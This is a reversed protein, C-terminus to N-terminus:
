LLRNRLSVTTTYVKRMLQDNITIAPANLLVFPGAPSGPVVTGSNILLSVRVSLVQAWPLAASAPAYSDVAGDLTTDVGYLIQMGDVGTVLETNNCFLSSM